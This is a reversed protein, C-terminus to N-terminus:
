VIISCLFATEQGSWPVEVGAAGLDGSVAGLQHFSHKNNLSSKWDGM